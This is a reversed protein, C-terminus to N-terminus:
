NLNQTALIREFKEQIAPDNFTYVKKNTWVSVRELEKKGILQLLL